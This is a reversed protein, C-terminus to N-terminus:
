HVFSIWILKSINFYFKVELFDVQTNTTKCSSLAIPDGPNGFKTLLTVSYTETLDINPGDVIILPQNVPSIGRQRM